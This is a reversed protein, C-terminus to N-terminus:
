DGSMLDLAAGTAHPALGSLDFLVDALIQMFCMM